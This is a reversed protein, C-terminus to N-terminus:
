TSKRGKRMKERTWVKLKKLNQKNNEENQWIHGGQKRTHGSQQPTGAKNEPTDLNNRHTRRTKQHTWITATHGCQKRNHGSQQPTDAESEPTDLSNRHTRRMEQQTWVTATHGGQKRTHEPHRPAKLRRFVTQSVSDFFSKGSTAPNTEVTVLLLDHFFPFHKRRFDRGIYDDQIHRHCALRSLLKNLKAGSGSFYLRGVPQSIVSFRLFTSVCFHCISASCCVSFGDNECAVVM